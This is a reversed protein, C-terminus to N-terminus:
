GVCGAGFTSLLWISMSKKLVDHHNFVRLPCEPDGRTTPAILRDLDAVLTPDRGALSKRGAGPRRIRDAVVSDPQALEVIGARITPESLGSARSVMAIGGYGLTMAENAAALRRLKEDFFPRLREFKQRLQEEVDGTYM